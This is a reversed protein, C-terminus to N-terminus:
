PVADEVVCICEAVADLSRRERYGCPPSLTRHLCAWVFGAEALKSERREIEISCVAGADDVACSNDAPGGLISLPFEVCSEVSVSENAADLCDSGVAVPDREAIEIGRGKEFAYNGLEWRLGKYVQVRRVVHLAFAAKVCVVVLVRVMCM